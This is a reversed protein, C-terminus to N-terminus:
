GDTTYTYTSTFLNSKPASGRYGMELLYTTFSDLWEFTNKVVQWGVQDHYEITKKNDAFGM